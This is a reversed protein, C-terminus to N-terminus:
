KLEGERGVTFLYLPEASVQDLSMGEPKPIEFYVPKVVPYVRIELERPYRHRKLAMKWPQGTTYWDAILQGGAFVDAHDGTFAVNLLVDEVRDAPVEGIRLRFAAYEGTREMETFSVPITTKETRLLIEKGEPIMRLVTEPFSSCVALGNRGQWVCGDTVALRKGAMWANEAEEETLLLVEPSDGDFNLVPTERGRTYMVPIGDLFCLLRANTTRLRRDGIRLNFPIVGAFGAPIDMPPLEFTKEGAHVTFCVGPHDKMGRLRQVNSVFLFGEETEANYRICWRLDATNEPDTVQNEPYYCQSGAMSEGVDLLFYHLNKLLRASGHLTGSEGLPAQFDYSRVPVDTWSGTETSEQMTSHKGVPHTGGHFMYYGLMNAGTGLRCVAQAFTDQASLLPRRHFTCQIGGGLEATLYPWDKVSYTFKEGPHQWDSAIMPDNPAHLLLFNRNAPLEELSHDWPADAYGGMVPLMEGDVVNGGGWGTATYLPTLLGAEKALRKLSMMHVLGSGGSEGGCHGYENELQIGIVPGGDKLLLGRASDAIHGFYSRVLALYKPDDTRPTISADQQLWDPFGGNRCEGHAWPGVRLIVEMGAEACLRIFRRLDLNGDTRWIGKEEEHHIWFIYTSIIQIGLAKMKRLETEWEEAPYRSYHFEGMVPYWPIGRRILHHATSGIEDGNAAAGISVSASPAPAPVFSITQKEM